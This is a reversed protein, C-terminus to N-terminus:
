LLIEMVYPANFLLPHRQMFDKCVKAHNLAHHANAIPSTETIYQCLSDAYDERLWNNGAIHNQRPSIKHGLPCDKCSDLSCERMGQSFQAIAIRQAKTIYAM